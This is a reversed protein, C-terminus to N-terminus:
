RRRRSVILMAAGVALIFIAERFEFMVPVEARDLVNRTRTALTEVEPVEERIGPPETGESGRTSWALYNSPDYYTKDNPHGRGSTRRAM